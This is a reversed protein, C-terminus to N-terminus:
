KLGYGKFFETYELIRPVYKKTEDPMDNRLGANFERLRHPGWNYARLAQEYSGFEKILDDLYFCGGRVSHYPNFANFRKPPDDINLQIYAQTEPIIQMLGQAKASSVASINFDSEAKIQALIQPITFNWEKSAKIVANAIM